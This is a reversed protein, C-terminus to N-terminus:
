DQVRDSQCCRCALDHGQDPRAGRAVALRPGRRSALVVAELSEDGTARALAEISEQLMSPDQDSVIARSWRAYEVVFAVDTWGQDHARVGLAELQADTSTLGRDGTGAEEQPPGDADQRGTPRDAQALELLLYADVLAM